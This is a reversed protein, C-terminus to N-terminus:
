FLKLQGPFKMPDGKYTELSEFEIAKAGYRLRNLYILGEDTWGEKYWNDKWRKDKNDYIDTIICVIEKVTGDASDGKNIFKMGKKIASVNYKERIKRLYNASRTTRTRFGAIIMDISHPTDGLAEIVEPSAYQLTGWMKKGHVLNQSITLM